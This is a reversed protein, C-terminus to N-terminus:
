SLMREVESESLELSNAIEAMSFGRQALTTAAKQLGEYLGEQRGEQKGEQRGEQRGQQKGRQLGEELGEQRGAQLGKQWGEEHWQRTWETVTEALMTQVEQLEHLQSFERNPAIRRLVVRKLWALLSRRLPQNESASLLERARQLAAALQEADPAKEMQIITSLINDPALPQVRGEDFVFYSINPIYERLHEGVPAILERLSSPANWPRKGNYIVAPFIPPLLDDPGLQKQKILDQYFLGVYVMMRLAMHKDVESQLELLLYMYVWGGSDKLKVRWVVDGIRQQDAEHVYSSNVKELSEFDVLHVWAQQVYDSLFDTIVRKHSFFDKQASDHQTHM